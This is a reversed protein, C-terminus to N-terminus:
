INSAEHEIFKSSLRRSFTLNIIWSYEKLRLRIITKTYDSLNHQQQLEEKELYLLIECM